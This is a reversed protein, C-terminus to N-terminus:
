GFAIEKSGRRNPQHAGLCESCEVNRLTDLISDFDRWLKLQNPFSDPLGKLNPDM